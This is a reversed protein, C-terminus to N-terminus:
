PFQAPYGSTGYTVDYIFYYTEKVVRQSKNNQLMDGWIIDGNNELGESFV